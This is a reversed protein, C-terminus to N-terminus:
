RRRISIQIAASGIYLFGGIEIRHMLKRSKARHQAEDPNEKYINVCAVSRKSAPFGEEQFGRSPRATRRPPM